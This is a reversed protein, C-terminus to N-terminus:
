DVWARWADPDPHAMAQPAPAPTVHVRQRRIVYVGAGTGARTGARAPLTHGPNGPDPVLGSVPRLAGSALLRQLIGQDSPLRGLSPNVRVVATPPSPAPRRRPPPTSESMARGAVVLATTFGAALLFPMGSM